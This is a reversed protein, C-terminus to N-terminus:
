TRIRRHSEPNEQSKRRLIELADLVDLVDEKQSM